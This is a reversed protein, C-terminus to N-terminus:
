ESQGGSSNGARRTGNRIASSYAEDYLAIFADKGCHAICIDRIRSSKYHSFSEKMAVLADGLQERNDVDFLLGVDDTVANLGAWTRSAVIPLGVAMAEWIVTGFAETSSPLVFAHASSFEAAISERAVAGEFAVRDEVGRRAALEKLRISEPGHGAIRLTVDADSGFRDAFADVLLDARKNRDLHSVHGFVFPTKAPKPRITASELQPSLLGPFYEWPADPVGYAAELQPAFAAAVAIRRDSARIAATGHSRNWRSKLRVLSSPRHETIIFPIASEESLRHALIGAPFVTHAHLVDPVGYRATYQLFARRLARYHQAYNLGHARPVPLVVDTRATFIGQDNEIDVSRRRQRRSEGDYIPIGRAALVGIRMGSSALAQAQERFFSGNFDDADQPYWSPIILVHM